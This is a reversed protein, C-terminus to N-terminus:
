MSTLMAPSTRMPCTTSGATVTRTASGFSIKLYTEWVPHSASIRSARTSITRRALLIKRFDLCVDSVLFFMVGIVLEIWGQFYLFFGAEHKEQVVTPIIVIAVFFDTFASKTNKLAAIEIAPILGPM